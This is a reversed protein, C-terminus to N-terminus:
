TQRSVPEPTRSEDTPAVNGFFAYYEPSGGAFGYKSKFYERNLAAQQSIRRQEDSDANKITMSGYHVFPLDLCEARIGAQHLRVHYDQDEVFAIKFNEDFPGVKDWTERRILFCSFDPHPRKKSPDPTPYPTYSTREYEEDSRPDITPPKIKEPDRSGVATVFGGGDAVLHRMCDPRPGLPTNGDAWRPTFLWRLAQNWAAAVSKQPHNMITFIDPQTGLWNVTGDTSGNDIVLLHVDGIDQRRFTDIAKRTLHLNNRTLCVVWNV